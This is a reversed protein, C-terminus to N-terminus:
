CTRLVPASQRSIAQGNGRSPHGAPAGETAFRLRAAALDFHIHPRLDAEAIAVGAHGVVIFDIADGIEIQHALAENRKLRSLHDPDGIHFSSQASVIQVHGVGRPVGSNADRHRTAAVEQDRHRFARAGRGVNLARRQIKQSRSMVRQIVAAISPPQPSALNRLIAPSITM